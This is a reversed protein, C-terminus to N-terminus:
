TGQHFEKLHIQFNFSGFLEKQCHACTVPFHYAWRHGEENIRPCGGEDFCHSVEHEHLYKHGIIEISCVGCFVSEHEDQVHDYFKDFDAFSADCNKCKYEPTFDSLPEPATFDSSSGEYSEFDRRLKDRKRLKEYDFKTM